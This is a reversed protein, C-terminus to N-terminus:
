AKLLLKGFLNAVKWLSINKGMVRPVCTIPQLRFNFLRTKLQDGQHCPLSHFAVPLAWLPPQRSSEEAM